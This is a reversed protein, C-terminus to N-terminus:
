KFVSFTIERYIFYLSHYKKHKSCLNIIINNLFLKNFKKLILVNKELLLFQIKFETVQLKSCLNGPCMNNFTPTGRNNITCFDSHLDLFCMSADHSSNIHGLSVLIRINGALHHRWTAKVM